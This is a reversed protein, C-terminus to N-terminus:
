REGTPQGEITSVEGTEMLQKLKRLDDTVQISPEEGFLKAIAAAARGGPPDYRLEVHVETGRGGPAPTFHVSGANAIESGELSRWGILENEVENVIEADWEITRGAPAKAVWHSRLEDIRRVEQLHGMFTPLNELKRWFQYIEPATRNITISRDVRIGRGYPISTTEEGQRDLTSVGMASYLTCNGTIGRRLMMAGLAAGAVTGPSRRRVANAVLGAGAVLSVWRELSGVNKRTWFPASTEQQHLM